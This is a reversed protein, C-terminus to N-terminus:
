AAIRIFDSVTVRGETAAEIRGMTHLNPTREGTLYRQVTQRSVGILRAFEAYSQKPPGELYDRLTM